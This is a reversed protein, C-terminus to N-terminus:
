AFAEMKRKIKLYLKESIIDILEDIDSEASNVFKEINLSVYLKIKERTINGKGGSSPVTDSLENRVTQMSAKVRVGVDSDISTPISSKMQEKVKKMSKIFGVGYGQGSFDGLAEFEKSPSNIGLIDEATSIITTGLSRIKEKLWGKVNEIGNILGQILNKGFDAFVTSPSQIGLLSTFTSILTKGLNKITTWIKDRNDWLGKVLGLVLQLGCDILQPVLEIMAESLKMIITFAADILKQMNGDETLATTLSTIITICADIILDLNNVLGSVLQTILSVAAKIITNLNDEQLLSSALSSIISMAAEILPELNEVLGNVLSSIVQPAIAAISTVLTGFVSSIQTFVVKLSAAMEAVGKVIEDKAGKTGMLLGTMGVISQNLGPLLNSMIGNKVGTFTSKLTTLNDNLEGGAKVAKDSMVLGLEDAKNMMEELGASGGNLMPILEQACRSGFMEVATSAVDSSDACEKLAEVLGLNSGSTLLNKQAMQLTKMNTGSVDAAYALEQYQKASLSMKQSQEDINDAAEATELSMDLLKKGAAAAATGIAAVGAAVAKFSVKAVSAAASAAKKLGDTVPSLKSKIDSIKDKMEQFATKIKGIGTTQKKLEDLQDNLKVLDAEANNLSTAWRKAEASNKGYEKEANELAGALTRVKEEQLKVKDTHQQTESKLAKLSKGNDSFEASAKKMQSALLEMSADIDNITKKYEEGKSARIKENFEDLQNNFKILDTEAYNLSIAWQKAQESNEGYEKKANELGESLAKIKQKQLEIKENYQETQVKASSLANGNSSFEASAKKMESALLKMSDNINTVAKKYDKEGDLVIKPGINFKKAM